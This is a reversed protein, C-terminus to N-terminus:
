LAQEYLARLRPSSLAKFAEEIAECAEQRLAVLEHLELQHLPLDRLEALREHYAEELEQSSSGRTVGLISLYDGQRALRLADGLRVRAEEVLRDSLTPNSAGTAELGLCGLAHLAYLISIMRAITPGADALLDSLAKGDFAKLWAILEPEVRAKRMAEEWGAELRLNAEQAAELWRTATDALARAAEIIEGLLSGPFLPLSSDAIHAITEAEDVHITLPASVIAEHLLEQRARRLTRELMLRSREGREVAENLRRALAEEDTDDLEDRAGSTAGETVDIELLQAARRYVSAEFFVIEGDKVELVVHNATATQEAGATVALVLRMEANSLALKGLRHIAQTVDLDSWSRGEFTSASRADAGGARLKKTPREVVIGEPQAAIQGVPGLRESRTASQDRGHTMTSGDLPPPLTSRSTSPEQKVPAPESSPGSRRKLEEVTEIRQSARAVGFEPCTEDSPAEVAIEPITRDDDGEEPRPPISSPARMPPLPRDGELGDGASAMSLPNPWLADDPVLEEPSDLREPLLWELPPSGAFLREDADRLLRRLEDGIPFRTLMRDVGGSAEDGAGALPLGDLGMAAGLPQASPEELPLEMTAEIPRNVLSLRRSPREADATREDLHAAICIEKLAEVLTDIEASRALYARAGIARLEEDDRRLADDGVLVVCVPKADTSLARIFQEVHPLEVAVLAVAAQTGEPQVETSRLFVDFERQRLRRALARGAPTPDIIDIRSYSM